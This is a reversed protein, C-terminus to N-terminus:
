KNDQNLFRKWPRPHDSANSPIIAFMLLTLATLIYNQMYFPLWPTPYSYGVYLLWAAPLVQFLHMKNLKDIYSLSAFFIIFLGALIGDWDQSSFIFRSLILWVGLIIESIRAWM